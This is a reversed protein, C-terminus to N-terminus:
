RAPEASPRVRSSGAASIRAPTSRHCRKTLTFTSRLRADLLGLMGRTLNQM